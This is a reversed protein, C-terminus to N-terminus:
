EQFIDLFRLALDNAMDEGERKLRLGIAYNGPAPFICDRIPILCNRHMARGPLNVKEERLVVDEETEMRSIKLEMIGEGVGDYLAFYVSFHTKLSPFQHFRLAHFVDILSPKGQPPLFSLSKCLMMGVVRPSRM